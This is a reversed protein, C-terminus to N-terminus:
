SRMERQYFVANNQNVQKLETSLGLASESGGLILFGNPNLQQVLRSLIEKKKVADQYILVYRCLIVDFKGMSEFSDLLNKKSFDVLASIEPKLQWQDDETKTFYKVLRAASLGRQVELQSYRAAKCRKLAADSIDTSKIEMRPFTPDKQRAEHALMAVSYAEQGFSAAASWFRYTFVGPRLARLQPMIYHELAAFISPDRFFSTENNTAIDLLYARFDGTIGQAVAKSYLADSNPLALYEAVKELRQDLQYYVPETYIIGIEKEIFDAFLKLRSNALM